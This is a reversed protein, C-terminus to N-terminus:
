LDDDDLMLARGIMPNGPVREEARLLATRRDTVGTAEAVEAIALAAGAALEYPAEELERELLAVFSAGDRNRAADDARIVSSSVSTTEDTMTELLRRVESGDEADAAVLRRWARVYAGLKPEQQADQSAREYGTLDGREAYLRARRAASVM